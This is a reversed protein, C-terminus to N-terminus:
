SVFKGSNINVTTVYHRYQGCTITFLPKKFKEAIGEAYLM